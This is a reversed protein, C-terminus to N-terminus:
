SFVDGAHEHLAKPDEGYNNPGRTGESFLFVLLVISGVLPILSILIFWGSRNTDHLRRVTVALGPIFSFLAFLIILLGSLSGVIGGATDGGVTGATGSLVGALVVWVIVVGFEFLRYMRYEMRRSRGSFDAYRRYPLLMWEM